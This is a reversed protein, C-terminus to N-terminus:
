HITETPGVVRASGGMRWAAFPWAFLAVLALLVAYGNARYFSDPQALLETAGGLLFTGAVVLFCGLINFRMVWRVGFVLVSFLILRALFQKALDAPSGWNGGALALAGFLLLLVRLGRHRVQGAVFAATATVLGTFLLGRLVTGGVISVAPLLADFDLGFSAELSRHATPWHASAVALFRELGLLGAAGGLGIWLADRYYSGPMGAWGPLREEGFARSAYYWAIAFLLAIGGFYLPGGVLVGVALGGYMVKLPIATNYANLFSPVRNGLFFVALYGLLGWISWLAIRRWPVSRAAESKLNKLFVILATLGLGTFFLIPIVYSFIARFLSLEEQKRRWNDPIKIYTRYNTVEDGLVQVDIRAHAHDETNAASAASSPVADLPENQQWTLTHDIRHPRKDSNSEVLAWKKLDLKKEDRLFKEARAVAEEKTLSAGPAEEALTHRVSHLAGEPRLVVAFEEAQSDRFYRVRWLAAPVREAYIANVGAIGARQRLYENVVPDAIDVFVAAQYYSNPDLGRQRMIQDARAQATRANVSLKLYEGISPPKLRWALLGGGLLCVALFAIMGPALAAYRSPKAESTAAEHETVLVSERVPAARNLLDEGIEFGGRTWYSICAFALPALAAAGVVVGSIKFYLSNSRILLLGVLSADVTYHWILTAVIGWRLMVIGAVVGIIGVEIGRIYGPEQPYASHLFSWSFAPLIVALIRSKTMREVFPIAFLRFLFEESTSAMLGIAVGAIWPFTTNVTDSYNLDQPAWVGYRSGVMYFAVIFGIHAAALTLGVVASSFFEKSRLGRMTFAKSLQMRDPRYSRYLPEGGPLVLTVMLATGLASALAIGLRLVVFSSYSEHTDYSAREFQWQNLEMLFFLAAVVAGLKIAGGWSTQGQKTLTIGVWLASGLFLIYPIIAIQNYLINSSRLQQYSREWAEPVKLFEESGGVKDGQLTVQLRYPADKARFGRKEWTFAWDLRNPRKSSNAEEPLFDWGGLNLGLKANLYNQASSQATARDLSTGARSEEIKHNYGAIQGAPSVRVRFEEEQQPKFFRVEWFWINLESSMLKNAQQLGLERELYVKANDDVDFVITSEYGSVNEGLGSVFKEARALAEERSIQFNVSAEPFARFYYKSAFLAGAIGAVVWLILARKDSGTLRDGTM